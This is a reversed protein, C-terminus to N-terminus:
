RALIFNALFALCVLGTLYTLFFVLLTGKNGYHLKEFKIYFSFFVIATYIFLHYVFTRSWEKKLTRDAEKPFNDIEYTQFHIAPFVFWNVVVFILFLAFTWWISYSKRYGYGNMFYLLWNTDFEHQYSM